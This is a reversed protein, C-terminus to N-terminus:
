QIRRGDRWIALCQAREPKGDEQQQLQVERYDRSLSACVREAFRRSGAGAIYTKQRGGVIVIPVCVNM